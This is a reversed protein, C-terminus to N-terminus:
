PQAEAPSLIASHAVRDELAAFALDNEGLTGDIAAIHIQDFCPRQALTKSDLFIRRAVEERDLHTDCIALQFNLKNMIGAPLSEYRRTAEKWQGEPAHVSAIADVNYFFRLDIEM